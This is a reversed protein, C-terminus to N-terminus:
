RTAFLDDLTMGCDLAKQVAKAEDLTFQSIGRLKRRTSTYSMGAKEALDHSDWGKLYMQVLLQLYVCENKM